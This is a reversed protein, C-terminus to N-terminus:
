DHLVGRLRRRSTVGLKRFVKRLHYDVTSPSLYLHAAIEANTAGAGALRAVAAEQPTLATEREKPVPSRMSEGTAGLEARARGAFVTAGAEEFMELATALQDRADRRRRRRRLWEGYLLRARALDGWAPTAALREVAARYHEEAEEPAALLARSRDLLGLARPTGSNGAASALDACALEATARDGSRLAAEVLDPLAWAYRRPRGLDVIDLLLEVAAPYAGSAIELGAVALRTVTHMGGMHLMEFVGLAQPVTERFGDPARWAVLEPHRWVQEQEATIGISRRLRQGAADHRDAHRLRGLVADTMAGVFHVLDLTHLAGTRRAAAEARDLLLLKTDDDWLLNCYNIGVVFRRRLTEDPLAPDAIAAIARRLLPVCAAYGDQIFSAYGALLLGDLGDPDTAALRAAEAAVTTESVSSLHEAGIAHDVAQVAARRARGHDAGFAGAAELCLATADRLATPAGTNVTALARTLLASGRAPGSLHDDGATELLLLARVPAGAAMAAAAAEVRRGTRVTEDPTLEAARSLFTSRAAQGGRAGARDARRELEAAVSEDPAATAAALHWARRDADADGTIAAALAAHVARRRPPPADGYVASRVLPHRFVVPPTGSVLRDSEAPAADEPRVALLGAAALLHDHRAGAGAAALVLWTRTAEPYGSVRASYHAELRSGIPVPDPLPSAGRLQESTLERGLDTLALPNGGTSQAVHEALGLDLDGTVVDSLLAMAADRALGTIELVDVGALLGPDEAVVRQGFLLVVGEAHLRRAVFALARASDPDLWHVDDVVCLRPAAALLTLAALSVLYLDPTPGDTLGCAVELAARQAPPLNGREPLLPILLRHLGAYPLGAEAEVGSIVLTGAGSGAPAGTATSLAYRLLATKGTGAEGRLVLAASHGSRAESLLGDLVACETERGFLRDGQGFLRM